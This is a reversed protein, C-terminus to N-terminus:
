LAPLAKARREVLLGVPALSFIWGLQLAYLWFVFMAGQTQVREAPFFLALSAYVAIQFTGFFGPANPLSMGFALTGVVAGAQAPTAEPFGAARLLLWASLWYLLWYGTSVAIFRAAHTSDTLFALGRALESLARVVWDSARTSVRGLTKKILALATEHFARFVIVVFIAGLSTAAAGYGFVAVVRTPIALDGIHEPLPAILEASSLSVLLIASAFVADIIRETASTSVAALFSVRTNRAILAPRVVEGSRFPLLLTAAQGVISASLIRGFAVREVPALQFRWRWAKFFLVVWWIVSYVLLNEVGISLPDVDKPLFPLSGARLVQWLGFGLLLSGLSLLLFRTSSPRKPRQSETLM